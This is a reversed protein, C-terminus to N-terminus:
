RSENPRTSDALLGLQRMLGLNDWNGWSAAIRGDAIRYTVTGSIAIRRGTPALDFVPDTHTAALSVRAAVFDGEAILAEITYRRDPFARGLREASQKMAAPGQMPTPANPPDYGVYETALLDDAVAIDGITFIEDYLRRVLAKNAELAM